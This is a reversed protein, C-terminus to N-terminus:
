FAKLTPYVHSGEFGEELINLLVSNEEVYNPDDFSARNILEMVVSGSENSYPRNHILPSQDPTTVEEKRTCM